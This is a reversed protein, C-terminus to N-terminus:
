AATGIYETITIATLQQMFVDGPIRENKAEVTGGDIFALHRGTTNSWENKRVVTPGWGERYAIPTEYSFWIDLHGLSVKTFNPRDTPHTVKINM